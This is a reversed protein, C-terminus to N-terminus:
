GLRQGQGRFNGSGRGFVGSSTGQDGHNDRPPIVTGFARTQGGQVGPTPRPFLSKFWSPTDFRRGGQAPWLETLFLHLHAGLIGTFCVAAQTPGSVM